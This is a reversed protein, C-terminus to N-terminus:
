FLSEGVELHRHINFDTRLRQGPISSAFHHLSHKLATYHHIVGGVTLSSNRRLARRRVRRICSKNLQISCSPIV